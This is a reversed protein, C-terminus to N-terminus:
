CEFGFIDGVFYLTVNKACKNRVNENVTEAIKKCRTLNEDGSGTPQFQIFYVSLNLFYTLGNACLIRKWTKQYIRCFNVEKCFYWLWISVLIDKLLKKSCDQFKLNQQM